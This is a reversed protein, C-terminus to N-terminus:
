KVYKFTLRYHSSQEKELAKVLKDEIAAIRNEVYLRLEPENSTAVVTPGEEGELLYIDVVGDLKMDLAFGPYTIENKVLESLSSNASGKPGALSITTAALLMLSALVIGKTKM